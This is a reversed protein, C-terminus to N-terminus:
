KQFMRFQAGASDVAGYPIFVTNAKGKVLAERMMDIERERIQLERLRLVEPTISANLIRNQNALSQADVEERVAQQTALEIENQKELLDIKQQARRQAESLETDKNANIRDTIVKPLQVPGLSVSAIHLPSDKLAAKIHADLTQNIEPLHGLVEEPTYKGLVERAVRGVVMNGYKDYVQQVGISHVSSDLRMDQLMANIVKADTRLRYRVNVKFDMELGIRHELEGAENTVRDAMIVRVPAARRVSSTELLVLRDRGTVTARGVGYIEPTVGEKTIIKGIYGPPIPESCGTLLALTALLGALILKKM